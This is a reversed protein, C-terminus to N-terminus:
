FEFIFKFVEDQEVVRVIGQTLGQIYPMQGSFLDLEPGRVSNTGSRITGTVIGGSALPYQITEGARFGHTVGSINKVSQVPSLLISICVSLLLITTFSRYFIDVFFDAM